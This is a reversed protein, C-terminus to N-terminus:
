AWWPRPTSASRFRSVSRSAGSWFGVSAVPIEETIQARLPRAAAKGSIALFFTAASGLRIFNRRDLSLDVSM